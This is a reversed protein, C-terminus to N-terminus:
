GGHQENIFALFDRLQKCRDGCVKAAITGPQRPEGPQRAISRWHTILGSAIHLLSHPRAKAAQTDVVAFSSTSSKPPRGPKKPRDALRKDGLFDVLWQHYLVRADAESINGFCGRRPTKTVPDRFSVHWGIGRNETYKLRPERRKRNVPM